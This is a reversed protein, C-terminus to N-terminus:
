YFSSLSLVEGADNQRILHILAAEAKKTAPDGWEESAPFVSQTTHEWLQVRIGSYPDVYPNRDSLTRAQMNIVEGQGETDITNALNLSARDM